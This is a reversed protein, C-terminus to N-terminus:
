IRVQKCNNCLMLMPCCTKYHEDLEDEGQFASDEEGCFMCLNDLIYGSGLHFTEAASPAFPTRTSMRSPNFSPGILSSKRSLPPSDSANSLVISPATLSPKRRTSLTTLSSKRSTLTPPSDSLVVSAATLSSKRPTSLTTLSSKRSSPLSGSTDPLVISPAAFSPKPQLHTVKMSDRRIVGTKLKLNALEQKMASLDNDDNDESMDEDAFETNIEPDRSQEQNSSALADRGGTKKQEPIGSNDSNEQDPLNTNALAKM